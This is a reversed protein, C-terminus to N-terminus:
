RTMSRALENELASNAAEVVPGADGDPGIASLEARCQRLAKILEAENEVRQRGAPHRLWEVIRCTEDHDEPDIGISGCDCGTQILGERMAAAGAEAESARTEAKETRRQCERWGASLPDAIAQWLEDQERLEAVERMLPEFDERLAEITAMARCIFAWAESAYILLDAHCTTAPPTGEKHWREIDKALLIGAQETMTDGGARDISRGAIRAQHALRSRGNDRNAM